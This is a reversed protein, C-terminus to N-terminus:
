VTLLEDDFAKEIYLIPSKSLDITKPEGLPKGKADQIIEIIPRLPFDKNISKVVGIEHTNLKVFSGSPYVTIYNM